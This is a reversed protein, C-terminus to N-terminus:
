NAQEIDPACKQLEREAEILSKEVEVAGKKVESEKNNIFERAKVMKETEDKLKEM